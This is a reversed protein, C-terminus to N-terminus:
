RGSGAARPLILPCGLEPHEMVQVPHGYVSEILSADFVQRPPGSDRMRGGDLLVVRDAHRAALNIDHLVALVAAGNSALGSLTAMVLEQHRLDLSGTPEDLLILPTEQALVRALSVRTQEGGSLTPYLRSRLHSVDTDGMVREVVAADDAEGGSHPYRGMMVVELCQFAFQLLHHQPLVARERAMAAVPLNAAARGGIEISGTSPQLEGAILRLLTTKGSGNPGVVAVVEGAHVELDIGAVLQQGDVTYGLDRTRAQIM